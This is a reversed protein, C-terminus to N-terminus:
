KPRRKDKSVKAPGTQKVPSSPRSVENFAALGAKFAKAADEARKSADLGEEQACAIAVALINHLAEFENM